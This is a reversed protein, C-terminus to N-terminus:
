LVLLRPFGALAPVFHATLSNGADDLSEPQATESGAPVDGTWHSFLSDTRRFATVQVPFEPLLVAGM